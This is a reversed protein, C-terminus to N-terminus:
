SKTCKLTYFDALIYDNLDSTTSFTADGSKGMAFMFASTRPFQAVVVMPDDAQLLTGPFPHAGDWMLTAIGDPPITVELKSEFPGCNLDGDCMKISQCVIMQALALTPVALMTALLFILRM